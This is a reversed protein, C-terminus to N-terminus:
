IPAILPGDLGRYVLWQGMALAGALAVWGWGHGSLIMSLRSRVLRYAAWAIFLSFLLYFILSPMRTGARHASIACCPRRPTPFRDSARPRWPPRVGGQTGRQLVPCPPKVAARIRGARM